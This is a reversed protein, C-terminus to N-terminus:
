DNPTIEIPKEVRLLEPLTYESKWCMGDTFRCRLGHGRRWEWREVQTPKGAVITKSPRFWRRKPYGRRSM